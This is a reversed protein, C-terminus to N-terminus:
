FAWEMQEVQAFNGTIAVTKLQLFMVASFSKTRNSYHCLCSQQQETPEDQSKKAFYFSKQVTKESVSICFSLFFFM